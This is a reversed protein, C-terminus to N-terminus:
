RRTPPTGLVFTSPGDPIPLYAAGNLSMVGNPIGPDGAGTVVVKGRGVASVFIGTGKLNVVYRGDLARFSVNRGTCMTTWADIAKVGGRCHVFQPTQGDLPTLDKIRVRGNAFRGIVTGRLKLTDSGRGRKVSLTGDSPSAASLAAPVALAAALCLLLLTRGM